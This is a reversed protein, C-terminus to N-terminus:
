SEIIKGPCMECMTSSQQSTRCPKYRTLSIKNRGVAKSCYGGLFGM